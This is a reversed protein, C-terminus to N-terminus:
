TLYWRCKFQCIIMLSNRKHVPYLGDEVAYYCDVKVQQFIQLSLFEDQVECLDLPDIWFAASVSFDPVFSVLCVCVDTSIM